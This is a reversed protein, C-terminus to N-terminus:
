AGAQAVAFAQAHRVAVDATLIARVLVNGRRYADEAYPNVVIDLGDAWIGILLNSWAGFILSPAGQGALLGTTAFPYGALQRPNDMVMGLAVGAVKPTNMLHAKTAASGLFAASDLPVNAGEVSAVMALLTDWGSASGPAVGPTNAIGLPTVTGGAGTLAAADLAEAITLAMDAQTLAEVDPSGQVVMNRSLQTIAGVHKPRLGVRDFAADTEPIATNEAFWGAGVSATRRPVDVNGQLDALVTAGLQRVVTANRLRDIFLDSRLVTPILASGNPATGQAGSTLTRAEAVGMPWFLGEAKRGTRLEVERSMERARGAREDAAGPLQARIADLIGVRGAESAFRPDASGGLSQGAARRDLDDLAAQRREQADLTALEGELAAWRAQAAEALAGGNAGDHLQRLETRIAERRALMERITM